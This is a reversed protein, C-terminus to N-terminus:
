MINIGLAKYPEFSGDKSSIETIITDVAKIDCVKFSEATGIKDHTTIAVVKNASQVMSRKAETEDFNPATVGLELHLSCIGTFCIDVRVRDLLRLTEVGMTVQSSKFIRGGALIVEVMSHDMLANVVPISNTIVTLPINDPILTALKFTTTGGDLMITAGSYILELAKEAIITKQQESANVREKFSHAQMNPSHPVAGGRVKLCLGNRDLTEIDRRITDESVNLSFSLDGLKVVQDAKLKQLIFDLREEKLM